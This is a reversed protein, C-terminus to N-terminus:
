GIIQWKYLIDYDVELFKSGWHPKGVFHVCHEVMQLRENKERKHWMLSSSYHTKCKLLFNLFLFVITLVFHSVLSLVLAMLGNVYTTERKNSYTFHRGNRVIRVHFSRWQVIVNSTVQDTVQTFSVNRWFQEAQTFLFHIIRWCLLLLLSQLVVLTFVFFVFFILLIQLEICVLNLM